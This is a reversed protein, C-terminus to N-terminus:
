IIKFPSESEDCIVTIGETKEELYDQM